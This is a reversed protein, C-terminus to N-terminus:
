PCLAFAMNAAHWMEQVAMAVVWPLGQGGIEEPFPLANWGGECYLRYAETFGQPTRVVGNELICGERDGPHNLPALVESALRGAENLVADVVDPTAEGYGPLGTIADLGVIRQLVFRMEDIPASYHTMPQM